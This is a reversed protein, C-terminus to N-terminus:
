PTLDPSSRTKGNAATPRRRSLLDRRASRRQCIPGLGQRPRPHFREFRGQEGAPDVIMEFGMGNLRLDRM